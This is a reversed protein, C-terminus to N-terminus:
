IDDEDLEGDELEGEEPEYEGGEVVKLEGVNEVEGNEVSGVSVREVEVKAFELQIEGGGVVIDEDLFKPSEPPDIEIDEGEEVELDLDRELADHIARQLYEERDNQFQWQLQQSPVSSGFPGGGAVSVSIGPPLLPITMNRGLTEDFNQMKASQALPNLWRTTRSETELRLLESQRYTELDKDSLVVIPPILTYDSITSANSPSSRFDDIRRSQVNRSDSASKQNKSQEWNRRQERAKKEAEEKEKKLGAAEDFASNVLNLVDVKATKDVTTTRKISTKMLSSLNNTPQLFPLQEQLIKGAANEKITTTTAKPKESPTEVFSVTPLKRKKLTPNPKDANIREPKTKGNDNESETEHTHDSTSNYTPSPSMSEIRIKKRVNLAIRKVNQLSKLQDETYVPSYTKQPPDSGDSGSEDSSSASSSGRRKLQSASRPADKKSDHLAKKVFRYLKIQTEKDLSDVDLEIDESQPLSNKSFIIEVAKVMDEQKLLAINNSLDVKQKYSLEVGSKRRDLESDSDNKRRKKSSGKSSSKGNKSGSKQSNSRHVSKKKSPTQTASALKATISALQKQLQQLDHNDGNPVPEDDSDSDSDFDRKSDKRKKQPTIATNPRAKWKDNFVLELSRGMSYVPSLPDNFTFCNRLMLRFDSEFEEATEYSGQELKKKITSLDMPHKIIDFYTPINLAIPDVPLLFPTTFELYKKSQMFEKLITGCYILNRDYKASNLDRSPTKVDRKPRPISPNPASARPTSPFISDAGQLNSKSHSKAPPAALRTKFNKLMEEGAKSVAHLPGNFTISNNVILEFDDVVDKVTWYRKEKFKKEMTSIDMPKTIVQPYTPINLAIPDVPVRFATAHATKKVARIVNLCHKLQDEVKDGVEPNILYTSTPTQRSSQPTHSGNTEANGGNQHGNNLDLATQPQSIDEDVSGEADADVDPTLGETQYNAPIIEETKLDAPIDSSEVFGETVIGSELLPMMDVAPKSDDVSVPVSTNTHSPTSIANSTSNAEPLSATSEAPPIIEEVFTESHSTNNIIVAVPQDTLPAVGSDLLVSSETDSKIRKQNNEETSLSKTSDASILSDTDVSRKKTPSVSGATDIDSNM